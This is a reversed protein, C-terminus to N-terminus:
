SAKEVKVYVRKIQYDQSRLWRSLTSPTTVYYKAANKLGLENVKAVVEQTPSQVLWKASM